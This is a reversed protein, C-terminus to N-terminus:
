LSGEDYLDGPHKNFTSRQPSDSESSEAAQTRLSSGLRNNDDPFHDQQGSLGWPGEIGCRGLCGNHSHDRTRPESLIM